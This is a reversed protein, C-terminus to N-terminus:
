GLFTPLEHALQQRQAACWEAISWTNVVDSRIGNPM